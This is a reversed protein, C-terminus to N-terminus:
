SNGDKRSQLYGKGIVSFDVNKFGESCYRNNKPGLVAEASCYQKINDLSKM